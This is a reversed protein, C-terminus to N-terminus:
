LRDPFPNDTPNRTWFKMVAGNQLTVVPTLLWNSITNTGTTNNFNAGIYSTAAGAQAPFVSSNGQFWGTSGVPVSNNQMFWGAGTLTTINDFGETISQANVNLAGIAIFLGFVAFASLAAKISASKTSRFVNTWSM